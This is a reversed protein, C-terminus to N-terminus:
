RSKKTFGKQVPAWRFRQRRISVEIRYEVRVQKVRGQPRKQDNDKLSLAQSLRKDGESAIESWFRKPKPDPQTDKSSVYMSPPIAIPLRSRLRQRAPRALEDASYEDYKTASLNRPILFCFPLRLTNDAPASNVSGDGIPDERALLCSHQELFTEQMFTVSTRVRDYGFEAYPM